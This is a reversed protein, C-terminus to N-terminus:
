QSLEFSVAINTLVTVPQGNLLAPRYQWQSVADTAATVLGPDVDNNMVHLDSLTGDKRILAEIMVTGTVGNAKMDAPYIPQVRKLIMAAQVNGGVQIRTPTTTKAAPAASAPRAAKVSVTESVDGLTLHANVVMAKGGAVTVQVRMAKFGPVTVEVAYEGPLLANFRYNGTADSVATEQSSGDVNKATVRANPVFAGSPDKVAGSLAGTAQPADAAPQRVPDAAPMAARRPKPAPAPESLTEAQAQAAVDPVAQAAEIASAQATQAPQAYATTVASCALVVLCAAAIATIARWTLPRRSRRVDLLARVRSELSGVEAMTVAGATWGRNSAMARALDTLHGAYDAAPVGRLVVADDCAREREVKLQRVALWALPHFWYLCSAAQGITQALLDRREVHILEHLLVTRLRAESWERAEVPLVVTARLIGWTLPMSVRASEHVRVVRSNGGCLDAMADQAYPADGTRRLLMWARFRGVLFWGATLGCGALWLLLTLNWSPRVAVATVSMVGPQAVVVEGPMLVGSATQLGWKPMVQVMAPLILLGSLAATWLFHRWAAPAKRMVGNAAFAALLIITGRWACQALLETWTM